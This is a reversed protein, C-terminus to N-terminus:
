HRLTQTLQALKGRASGDIVLDGARVIVGGILSQDVTCNLVVERQLRRSLADTIKQRQEDDVEFASILEAEITKEADARLEEYVQHIEPLIGLRDNEALLKIFNRGEQDLQEGCLDLFLGAKFPDDYEPSALLTQMASDKAFGAALSLQESWRQLGGDQSNATEFAARAYPRALTTNEAM